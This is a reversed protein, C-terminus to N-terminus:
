KEVELFRLIEEENNSRKHVEYQLNKKILKKVNNDSVNIDLNLENVKLTKQLVELQNKCGEKLPNEGNLLEASVVAWAFFDTRASILRKNNKIQEPAAYGISMPGYPSLDSTISTDTLDRAIGFDLLVLGKTDTIMINEPKIDRHVLGETHIIKLAKIIHTCFDLAEAEPIKNEKMYGRLNIGFIRQELIIIHNKGDTHYDLVDHIKPFYDSELSDLIALERRTRKESNGDSIEVIKLVYQNGNSIDKAYYVKKMGGSDFMTEDVTINPNESTYKAIIKDVKYVGM